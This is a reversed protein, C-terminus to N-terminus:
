SRIWRPPYPPSGLGTRPSHSSSLPRPFAESPTIWSRRHRNRGDSGQCRKCRPTYPQFQMGADLLWILGLAVQSRRQTLV